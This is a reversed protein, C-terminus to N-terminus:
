GECRRAGPSRQQGARLHTPNLPLNATSQTEGLDCGGSRTGWFAHISCRPDQAGDPSCPRGRVRRERAAAEQHDKQRATLTVPKLAERGSGKM